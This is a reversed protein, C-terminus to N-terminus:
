NALKIQWSTWTTSGAPGQKKRLAVMYQARHLSGAAKGELEADGIERALAQCSELLTAAKQFQELSYYCLALSLYAGAEAAKDGLEHVADLRAEHFHIAKSYNAIKRYAMGLSGCVEAEEARDGSEKAISLAILYNDIASAADGKQDMRSGPFLSTRCPEPRHLPSNSYVQQFGPPQEQHMRCAAGQFKAKVIKHRSHLGELHKVQRQDSPSPNGYATDRWGSTGGHDAYIAVPVALCMMHAHGLNGYITIADAPSRRRLTRAV